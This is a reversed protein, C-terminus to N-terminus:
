YVFYNGINKIGKPWRKTLDITEKTYITSQKAILYISLQGFNSPIYKSIKLKTLILFNFEM